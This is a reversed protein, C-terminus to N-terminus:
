ALLIVQLDGVNTGTPGTTVLDDLASFFAYSDNRALFASAPPLGRSQARQRSSSDVVAGAADTPGDIGDTGVSAAAIPRGAAALIDVFSLALEQNRGGRGPGTVTVTTEGSTIIAVPRPSDAVTDLLRRWHAQGESRAEGILAKDSVVVDYGRREAEVRAGQMANARGGIISASARQLRPHARTPTEELEGRVGAEIRAIVRSPYSGLGGFRRLIAQADAFTSEDGVTPGSGIVSLDDGVVDSVILTSTEGACNAALWGGKVRSLHKRVTNFAHIDAGARLLTHTTQRKDELTLGEAPLAMLASAGGSILVLMRESPAVRQAIGLAARGGQESGPGPEPHEGTVYSILAPRQSSAPGVAVGGQVWRGLQRVTADTM